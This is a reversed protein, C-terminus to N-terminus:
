YFFKASTKKNIGLAVYFTYAVSLVYVVSDLSLLVGLMLLKTSDIKTSPHLWAYTILTKWIGYKSITPQYIAVSTLKPLHGDM